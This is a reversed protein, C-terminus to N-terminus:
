TEVREIVTAFCLVDKISEDGFANDSRVLHGHVPGFIGPITKQGEYRGTELDGFKSVFQVRDGIKFNM